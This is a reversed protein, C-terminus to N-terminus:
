ALEKYLEDFKELSNEFHAMIHKRPKEQKPQTSDKFHGCLTTYSCHPFPCDEPASSVTQM